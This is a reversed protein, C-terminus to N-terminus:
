AGRWAQVPVTRGVNQRRGHRLALPAGWVLMTTAMLVDDHTRAPVTLRRRGSESVEISTAQMQERLRAVDPQVAADPLTLAGTSGLADLQGLLANRSLSWKSLHHTRGDTGIVPLIGPTVAHAEGATIVIPVLRRFPLLRGLLSLLAVNNSVDVLVLPEAGLARRMEALAEEVLAPVAEVPSPPPMECVLDVAIRLGGARDQGVRAAVLGTPDISLGPDLALLSGVLTWGLPRPEIARLKM